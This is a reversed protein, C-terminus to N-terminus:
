FVISDVTSSTEFICSQLTSALDLVATSACQAQYQYVRTFTAMDMVTIMCISPAYAFVHLYNQVTNTQLGITSYGALTYTSASTSPPAVKIIQSDDGMLITGDDLLLLNRRNFEYDVTVTFSTATFVNGNTIDM